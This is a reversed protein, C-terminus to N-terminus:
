SGPMSMSGLTASRRTSRSYGPRLLGAVTFALVFLLPAAVGGLALWRELSGVPPAPETRTLTWPQTM